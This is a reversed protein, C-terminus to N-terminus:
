LNTNIRKDLNSGFEMESLKGHISYKISIAIDRCFEVLVLIGSYYNLLASNLEHSGQEEEM